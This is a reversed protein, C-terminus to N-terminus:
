YGFRHPRKGAPFVQPYKWKMEMLRGNISGWFRDESFAAHIKLEKQLPLKEFKGEPTLRFHTGSKTSFVLQHYFLTRISELEAVEFPKDTQFQEDFSIVENTMPNFLDISFFTPVRFKYEVHVLWLWANGDEYIEGINNSSLGDQERTFWQFDHGDFRNLGYKTGIWMFGERDQHFSQVMDHSLGSGANFSKKKVLYNQSSASLMFVSFLVTFTIKNLIELRPHKLSM